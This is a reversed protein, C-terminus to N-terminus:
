ALLSKTRRQTGGFAVSAGPGVTGLVLQSRTLKAPKAKTSQRVGRGFFSNQAPFHYSADCPKM